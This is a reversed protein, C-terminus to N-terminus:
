ERDNEDEDRPDGTILVPRRHLGDELRALVVVLCRLGATNLGPLPPESVHRLMRQQPDAGVVEPEGFPRDRRERPALLVPSGDTPARRMVAENLDTGLEAHWSEQQEDGDEGAREGGQTSDRFVRYLRGRAHVARWPKRLRQHRREDSEAGARE